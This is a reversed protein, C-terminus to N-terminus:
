HQIDRIVDTYLNQHRTQAEHWTKPFQIVEHPFFTEVYAERMQRACIDYSVGGVGTGFGCITSIGIINSYLDLMKFTAKSALYPNITDGALRMPVRMTPASICFPIEEHHTMIMMAQGVLLEQIPLEKIKRQLEQQVGIGLKNTIARDLGGDMFGFSNAPSVVCDTPLDFFDGQHITVSALGAFYKLWADCMGQNRDILQIIM